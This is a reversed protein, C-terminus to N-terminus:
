YAAYSRARGQRYTGPSEGRQAIWGAFRATKEYYSIIQEPRRGRDHNGNPVGGEPISMWGLLACHMAGRCILKRYESIAKRWIGLGVSRRQRFGAWCSACSIHGM